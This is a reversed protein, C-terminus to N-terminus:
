IGARLFDVDVSRKEGDFDTHAFDVKGRCYCDDVALFHEGVVSVDNDVVSAADVGVGVDFGVDVFTQRADALLPYFVAAVDFREVANRGVVATHTEGVLAEVFDTKGSTVVRHASQGALVDSLHSVSAGADNGGFHFVNCDAFVKVVFFEADVRVDRGFEYAVFHSGSTGDNGCVDVVGFGFRHNDTFRKGYFEVGVDAVACKRRADFLFDVFGNPTAVPAAVRKHVKRCAFVDVFCAFPNDAVAGNGNASDGDVLGELFDVAVNGFKSPFDIAVREDFLAFLADVVEGDVGSHKAFM